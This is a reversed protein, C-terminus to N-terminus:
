EIIVLAVWPVFNFVIVFLKFLGIFCYIVVNFAERSIPYWKSHTRYIWDGTLACFLFSLVLLLVDIFTCWFFFGKIVTIDM